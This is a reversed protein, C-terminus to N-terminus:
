DNLLTCEKEDTKNVLVFLKIYNIVSDRVKKPLFKMYNPRFKGIIEFLAFEVLMDEELASLIIEAEPGHVDGTKKLKGYGDTTQKLCILEEMLSIKYPEAKMGFSMRVEPCYRLAAKCFAYEKLWPRDKPFAYVVVGEQNVEIFIEPNFRTGRTKCEAQEIASLYKGPDEWAPYYYLAKAIEEMAAKVQQKDFLIDAIALHSQSHSPNVQLEEEIHSISKEENGAQQYCGSALYHLLPMNPDLQILNEIKGCEKEDIEKPGHETFIMEIKASIEKKLPYPLAIVKGGAEKSVLFPDPETLGGFLKEINSVGQPSHQETFDAKCEKLGRKIRASPSFQPSHDHLIDLQEQLVTVIFGEEPEVHKVASKGPPPSASVGMIFEKESASYEDYSCTIIKKEPVTPDPQSATKKKHPCGCLFLLASILVISVRFGKVTYPM